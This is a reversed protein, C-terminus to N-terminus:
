LCRRTRARREREEWRKLCRLENALLFRNGPMGESVSLMNMVSDKSSIDKRKSM